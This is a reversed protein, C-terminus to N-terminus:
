KTTPRLRTTPAPLKFLDSASIAKLTRFLVGLEAYEQQWKQFESADIIYDQKESDYKVRWKAWAPEILDNMEKSDKCKKFFEPRYVFVPCNQFYSGIIELQSGVKDSHQLALTSFLWQLLPSRNELLIVKKNTNELFNELVKFLADISNQHLKDILKFPPRTELMGQFHYVYLNKRSLADVFGNSEFNPDINIVEVKEKKSIETLFDPAQQQTDTGASGVSVVLVQASSGAIIQAADILKLSNYLNIIFTPLFDKLDKAQELGRLGTLLLQFRLIQLGEHSHPPVNREKTIELLRNLKRELNNLFTDTVKKFPFGGYIGSEIHAAKEPFFNKPEESSTFVETGTFLLSDLFNRLRASDEAKGKVEPAPKTGAQVNREERIDSKKPMFLEFQAELQGFIAELEKYLSHTRLESPVM